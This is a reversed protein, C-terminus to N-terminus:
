MANLVEVGCLPIRHPRTRPAAVGPAVTLEDRRPARPLSHSGVDLQRTTIELVLVDAVACLPVHRKEPLEHGLDFARHTIDVAVAIVVHMRPLIVEGTTRLRHAAVLIAIETRTVM